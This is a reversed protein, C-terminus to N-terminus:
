YGTPRRLSVECDPLYARLRDTASPSVRDAPFVLERLNKLGRLKSVVSDGVATAEFNLSRLHKANKVHELGYSSINTNGLDLSVLSQMQCILDLDDDEVSSNSLDLEEIHHLEAIKGVIQRINLEHRLSIKRTDAFIQRLEHGTLLHCFLSASEPPPTWGIPYDAVEEALEAVAAPRFRTRHKHAFDALKQFITKAKMGWQEAFRRQRYLADLQQDGLCDERAGTEITAWRAVAESVILRCIPEEKERPDFDVSFLRCIDLVWRKEFDAYDAYGAGPHYFRMARWYLYSALSDAEWIEIAIQQMEDAGFGDERTM